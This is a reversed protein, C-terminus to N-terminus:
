CKSVHARKQKFRVRVTEGNRFVAFHLHPEYTYGTSGQLAIIQGEKVSEGTIVKASNQKLHIYITFEGDEHRILIYNAFEAYEEEPGGVNFIEVVEHVTGDRAALVATGEPILFDIAYKDRGVHTISQPEINIPVESPIPYAYKGTSIREGQSRHLFGLFKKKLSGLM